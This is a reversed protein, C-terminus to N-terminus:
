KGGPLAENYRVIAESLRGYAEARRDELLRLHALRRDYDLRLERDRPNDACDREAKTLSDEAVRCSGVAAGYDAQLKRLQTLFGELAM